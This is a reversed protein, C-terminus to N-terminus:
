KKLEPTKAGLALLYGVSFSFTRLNISYNEDPDSSEETSLNNLGHQYRIDFFYKGNPRIISIGAGINLEVNLRSVDNEKFDLEEDVVPQAMMIYNIGPKYSVSEYLRGNIAYGTLVGIIPNFKIKESGYTLKLYLPIELYNFYLRSKYILFDNDDEMAGGKRSYSLELQLATNKGIKFEAPIGFTFGYYDGTSISGGDYNNVLHSVDFGGRLGIFKQAVSTMACFIICNIILFQKKM